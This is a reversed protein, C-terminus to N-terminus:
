NYSEIVEIQGIIHKNFEDLDEAPIWLENYIKGGVNQVEYKKLYDSDVNFRTVFGAGYAPVNWNKTIQRAYELNLVPYFIPQEELRPPFKTYGSQEILDLEKQGVPRFLVTTM